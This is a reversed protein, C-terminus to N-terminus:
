RSAMNNQYNGIAVLATVDCCKVSHCNSSVDRHSFANLTCTGCNNYIRQITTALSIYM